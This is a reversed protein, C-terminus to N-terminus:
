ARQWAPEKKDPPFVGHDCEFGFGPLGIVGLVVAVDQQDLVALRVTRKGIDGPVVLAKGLNESPADGPFAIEGDRDHQTVVVVAQHKQGRISQLSGRGCPGLALL